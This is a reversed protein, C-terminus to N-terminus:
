SSKLLTNKMKQTYEFSLRQVIDNAMLFLPANHVPHSKKKVTNTKTRRTKMDVFRLVIPHEYILETDSVDYVRGQFFIDKTFGRSRMLIEQAKSLNESEQRLIKQTFRKKLIDQSQPPRHDIIEM